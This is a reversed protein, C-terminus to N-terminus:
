SVQWILSLTFSKYVPIVLCLCGLTFVLQLLGTSLSDVPNPTLLCGPQSRHAQNVSLDGPCTPGSHTGRSAAQLLACEGFLCVRRAPRGRLVLRSWINNAKKARQALSSYSTHFGHSKIYSGLLVQVLTPAYTVPSLLSQAHLGACALRQPGPSLLWSFGLLQGAAYLWDKPSCSCCALCTAQLRM